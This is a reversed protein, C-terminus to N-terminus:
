SFQKDTVQRVVGGTIIEARKEGAYADDFRAIHYYVAIAATGFAEAEDLHIASLRSVGGLFLEVPLVQVSARECDLIGLGLVIAAIIAARPAILGQDLSTFNHPDGRV